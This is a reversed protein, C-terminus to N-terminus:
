SEDDTEIIKLLSMRRESAKVDIMHLPSQVILADKEEPTFELEVLSSQRSRQPQQVEIQEFRSSFM